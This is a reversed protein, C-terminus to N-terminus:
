TVDFQFLPRFLAVDVDQEVDDVAYDVDQFHLDALAYRDELLDRQFDFAVGVFDVAVVAVVVFLDDDQEVLEFEVGVVDQALVFEGEFVDVFEYFDHLVLCLLLFGALDAGCV